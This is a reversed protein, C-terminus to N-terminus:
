SSESNMIGCSCPAGADRCQVFTSASGRCLPPHRTLRTVASLFAQIPPSNGVSLLTPARTVPPRLYRRQAELRLMDGYAAHM